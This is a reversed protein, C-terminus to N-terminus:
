IFCGGDSVARCRQGKEGSNLPMGAVVNGSSARPIFITFRQIHVRPRAQIDPPFLEANSDAESSGDRDDHTIRRSPHLRSPFPCGRHQAVLKKMLPLSRANQCDLPLSSAFPFAIQIWSAPYLALLRPHMRPPYPRRISERFLGGQRASSAAVHPLSFPFSFSFSVPFRADERELEVESLLLSSLGRM